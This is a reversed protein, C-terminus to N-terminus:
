TSRWRSPTRRFAAPAGGPRVDEGAGAALVPGGLPGDAGRTDVSAPLPRAHPVVDGAPLPRHVLRRDDGFRRRPEDGDRRGCRARPSSGGRRPEGGLRGDGVSGGCWRVLRGAADSGTSFNAGLITVATGGASPGSAPSLGSLIPRVLALDVAAKVDLSGWGFVNNPRVGATPAARRRASRRGGLRGPNERDARGPGRPRAPRVLPARGRGAVHPSAMSTGSLSAYGGGPVSSRTGTGPAALDPKTRGSGDLTVPGRSSFSAISTTGTQLAGVVWSEAYIAPLTPSRPAAPARREGGLGVHLDGGRAPGGRRAEAYRRCARRLVSLGVLQEDRAPGEGPRGAGRDRRGPVARPLVRLVRPIDLADRERRGHQPLRDLASRPGDRDPQGWELGAM